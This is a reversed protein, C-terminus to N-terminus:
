LNNRQNLNKISNPSKQYKEAFQKIGDLIEQRPRPLNEGLKWYMGNQYALPKINEDATIEIIEGIFM